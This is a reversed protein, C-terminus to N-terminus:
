YANIVSSVFTAATVSHCYIHRTLATHQMVVDKSSILNLSLTLKSFRIRHFNLYVSITCLRMRFYAVVVTFVRILHCLCADCAWVALVM